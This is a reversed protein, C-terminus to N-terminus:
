PRDRQLVRSRVTRDPSHLLVLTAWGVLTTHWMVRFDAARYAAIVSRAQHDLIGSLVVHAGPKLARGLRPALRILPEALINAIALDCQMTRAGIKLGDECAFAIRGAAGNLRANASAVDVAIPDIDTANIRARPLARSAALALIGTGCGIDLVHSYRNRRTLRDIAHLCGQTTAHHATGFAEGAAIEFSFPGRPVRSRDHAGYVYFRGARVPPLGAQSLAVWNLAPVSTKAVTIPSVGTTAVLWVELEAHEIDNSFYAEVRWYPGAEFMTQADPAPVLIETLAAATTLAEDRSALEVTVKVQSM